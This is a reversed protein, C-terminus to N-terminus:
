IIEIYSASVRETIYQGQKLGQGDYSIVIGSRTVRQVIALSGLYDVKDGYKLVQAQKTNM